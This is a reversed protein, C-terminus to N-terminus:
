GPLLGKLKTSDNPIESSYNAKGLFFCKSIDKKKAGGFFFNGFLFLGFDFILFCVLLV